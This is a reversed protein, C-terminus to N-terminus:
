KPRRFIMEYSPDSYSSTARRAFVLEWGDEGWNDLSELVLSDSPSEIKYEWQKLILDNSALGFTHIALLCGLLVPTAYVHWM